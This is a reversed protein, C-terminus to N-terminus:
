KKSTLLRLALDGKSGSVPLELSRLKEKLDNIRWDKYIKGLIVTDNTIAQKIDEKQQKIKTIKNSNISDNVKDILDKFMEKDFEIKYEDDDLEKGILYAGTSKVDKVFVYFSKNEPINGEITLKGEIDLKVYQVIDKLVDENYERDVLGLDLFTRAVCNTNCDITKGCTRYKFDEITKFKNWKNICIPTQEKIIVQSVNIEKGKEVDLGNNLSIIKHIQKTKQFVFTRNLYAFEKEFKKMGTNGEDYESFMTTEVLSLGYSNKLMSVLDNFKVLNEHSYQESIITDSGLIVKISEGFLSLDEYKKKYQYSKIIEFAVEGKDTKEMVVKGQKEHISKGDMLTGIFYGGEKLSHIVNIMFNHFNKENDLFYHLSFFSDVVDAKGKSLNPYKININEKNLDIQEYIFTRGKGKKSSEVIARKRAELLNNENIDFGIVNKVGAHIWKYMDGGRGSGFSYVLDANKCYRQILDNKVNNNFSKMEKFLDKERSINIKEGEIISKIKNKLTESDLESLSKLLEESIPSMINKFNDLAIDIYNPKIKDPRGRIPQFNISDKMFVFEAITNDKYQADIQKSVTTKYLDTPISSPCGTCVFLDTKTGFDSNLFWIGNGNKKILFDISIESEPKWKFLKNWKKNTPYPSDVPTFILGDLKYPFKDKNKYIDLGAKIVNGMYFKKIHVDYKNLIPSLNNLIENRKLFLFSENRLDKGKYFLIDFLFMKGILEGDLLSNNFEIKEKIYAIKKIVMKNSILYLYNDIVFLFMREGDTKDTVTYKENVLNVLNELQLTVAQAGIFTNKGTLKKYANIIYNKEDTFIPYFTQQILKFIENTITFFISIDKLESKNIYEIEIEYSIKDGSKVETFDLRTYQTVFFSTRKKDRTMTPNFISPGKELIEESSLSVRLDLNKIDIKDLRKKKMFFSAKNDETIKKISGEIEEHSNIKTSLLKKNNEHSFLVREFTNKDIGPVFSDGKYTGIRFELEMEVNQTKTYNNVYDLINQLKSEM